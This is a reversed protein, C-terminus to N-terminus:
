LHCNTRMPQHYINDNKDVEMDAVLELSSPGDFYKVWKFNANTDIKLVYVDHNGNLM